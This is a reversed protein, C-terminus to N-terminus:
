ATSVRDLFRHLDDEATAVDPSVRLTGLPAGFARLVVGDEALLRAGLAPAESGRVEVAVIMSQLSAVRPSRWVLRPEADVREAIVRRLAAHRRRKESLGLSQQFAIADGLAVVAPWARTSYDEYRRASGGFDSTTRNWMRPLVARLAPSAYFLGLGKPAQLWKHPSMAYADVGSAALDVDVMWASQAGDVLIWEVGRARVAATLEALPVTIGLMNDVHPLVLAKTAPGLAELHLEVIREPTLRDAGELPFDFSRVTFGRRGALARWPVSAAPHNLSSFLVEDGPGVPLGHALVNFGETTNHTVALDDPQCFLVGAAASRASEMVERWISGWVYLSPHSECLDLYGKHAELVPIPVTGISAHNLYVLDPSLRYQARLRRVSDPSDARFDLRERSTVLAAELREARALLPAAVGAAGLARLFGRRSTHTDTMATDRDRGGQDALGITSHKSRGTSASNTPM